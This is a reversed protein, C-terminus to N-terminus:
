HTRQDPASNEPTPMSDSPSNKLKQYRGMERNADSTRGARRYARSLAFHAESSTPNLEVSKELHVIAGKLDGKQLMLEGLQYRAASDPALTLATRFMQEARQQAQSDGAEAQKLLVAGYSLLLQANKPFRKLGSEFTTIAQKTLGASFQAEALGVVTNAQAPDLRLARDYSDVADTFQGVKQEISGRMAFARPSQPLATTAKRAVALAAPLSNGAILIKTLDLYNSEDAPAIEIARNLAQVAKEADGRKYYCWALLNYMQSTAPGADIAALLTGQSKDLDGARYQVLALRFAITEDGPAQLRLSQLMREATEYDQMEDAIAAGLLMSRPGSLRSLTERAKEKENLHYYARALAVISEPQQQVQEPVSSLMRAATAYDRTNEAVMGLLLRGQRDDPKQRLLIELNAKAESFRKLQWLNAALYRRVTLDDPSLKLAQQFVTTSRELKNQMALVTGLSALIESNNPDLRSARSLETEAGALDGRQALELGRSARQEADQASGSQSSAKAALSQSGMALVLLASAVSIRARKSRHGSPGGCAFMRKVAREMALRRRFHCYKNVPLFMKALRDNSEELSSFYDCLRSPEVTGCFQVDFASM